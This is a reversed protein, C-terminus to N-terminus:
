DGSEFGRIAEILAPGYLRAKREGIGTVSTLQDVTTPRKAALDSLTANSFIIFAPVHAKEALAARVEKLRQMLCENPAAPAQARKRAARKEARPPRVIARRTIRTGLRLVNLGEDTVSVVPYKGQSVSLLGKGIMLNAISKLEDPPTSRMAGYVVSQDYHKSIIAREQSGTVIAIITQLGLAYPLERDLHAVCAILSHAAKTIDEVQHTGRCHGCNGCEGSHAEGFYRLIRARLCEDTQCYAAMEELRRMDSRYIQDKQEDSLTANEYIKNIFFRALTVDGPSFLLVCEAREGDRGARGAEQYYSEIDKPMNYHLVYSVNSKDIGMDFANTAVMIPARDYVFDDQNRRREDESLGAHYRTAPLDHDQLMDCVQEVSRRTACYIIGSQGSKRRVYSLVYNMKDRPTVVDYYLNQRDFGTVVRTPENLALYKVIDERVRETATATFAGVPPRHPLRSVFEAIKLYSPRFDQGWQSVCHAEDVAVLSIDLCRILTDFSETELREPAVYIIKYRGECARRLATQIQGPTLSSNIYAAPIGAQILGAVQDAMLSILPSIVLTAGPLMLAPIQYCISKGAGTPMIALADRGHTLADVIQAQGPRFTDHGFYQKLLTTPQM